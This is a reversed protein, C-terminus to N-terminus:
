ENTLEEYREIWYAVSAAGHAAAVAARYAAYAAAAAHTLNEEDWLAAEADRARAANAKLAEVSVVDGAQWRKVVEIYENTM